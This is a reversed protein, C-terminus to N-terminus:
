IFLFLASGSILLFIIRSVNFGAGSFVHVAHYLAESKYFLFSFVAIFVGATVYFYNLKLHVKLVRLYFNYLIKKIDRKEAKQESTKLLRKKFNDIVPSTVEYSMVERLEKDTSEDGSSISEMARRREEGAKKTDDARRALSSQLVGAKKKIIGQIKGGFIAIGCLVIVFVVRFKM